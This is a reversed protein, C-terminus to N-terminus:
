ALIHMMGISRTSPEQPSISPLSKFKEKCQAEPLKKVLLTGVRQAQAATGVLSLVFLLLISKKMHHM